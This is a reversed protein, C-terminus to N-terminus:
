VEPTTELDVTLRTHINFGSTYNRASVGLNNLVFLKTCKVQSRHVIAITGLVPLYWCLLM